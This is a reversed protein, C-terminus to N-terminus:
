GSKAKTSIPVNLRRVLRALLSDPIMWCLRIIFRNIM